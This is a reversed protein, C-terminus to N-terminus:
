LVCGGYLFRGNLTSLFVGNPTHARTWRPVIIQNNNLRVGESIGRGLAARSKEQRRGRRLRNRIYPTPTRLMTYMLSRYCRESTNHVGRLIPEGPRPSPTTSSNEKVEGHRLESFNVALM